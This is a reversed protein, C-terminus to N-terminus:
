QQGIKRYLDRSDIGSNVAPVAYGALDSKILYDRYYQFLPLVVQEQNIIKEIQQYIQLRESDSVASQLSKQLLEDLEHNQYAMKNNASQSHLINLFASPEPYDACWGSRILDFDGQARKALLQQRTLPDAQIQILDSQSLMRIMREAIQPHIGQQEYSLRLRLPKGSNVGAQALLQEVVTPAWGEEQESSQLSRPLFKGNSRMSNLGGSFNDANIEQLSIMAALAKRVASQKLQPHRFNFEYYYTCLSPLAVRLMNEPVASGAAPLQLVDINAARENEHLAQYSVNRFFVSNRNWYFPNKELLLDSGHQYLLRYAGNTVVAAHNEQGEQPQEVPNNDGQYVPFLAVHSLMQPLHPVPQSLTLQLTHEDLAKIGLMEVGYAKNLVQEANELAMFRLYESLPNNEAQAALAYWSQVFDQATLASGNSWKLDPQLHFTWIKYDQQQWSQAAGGQLKGEKDVRVLGEYLDRILPLQLDDRLQQPQLDFGQAYIGRTLLHRSEDPQETQTQPATTKDDAPKQQWDCATLLVALALCCLPAFWLNFRIFVASKMKHWFGFM